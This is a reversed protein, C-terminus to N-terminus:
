GLQKIVAIVDEEGFAAAASKFTELATRALPTDMGEDKALNLDKVMHKLAFAAQYNDNLLADGKIKTFVNSLAGNGLLTLLDETNIQHKRSFTVIEALGETYIALLTNIALKAKNGIGSAGLHMVLKGMCSLLPEAAHFAQEEGGVMIVLQGDTAQKVSGSVPADLYEIGVASCAAAMKISIAPSVTSMNVIVKGHLEKSLLGDAGEFLSAVAHDDSVMLFVIDTAAILEGPTGAVKAGQAVLPETKSLTRNYVTLSYGKNLVQGAMPVGMNGLGIWGARTNKM